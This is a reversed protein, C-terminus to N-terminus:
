FEREPCFQFPDLSYELPLSKLQAFKETSVEMMKCHFYSDDYVQSGGGEEM